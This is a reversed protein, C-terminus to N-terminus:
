HSVTSPLGQEVDKSNSKVKDSPAIDEPRKWDPRGWLHKLRMSMSGPRSVDRIIQGFERFTLTVPNYSTPKGVQSVVGFEPQETPDEAVYTGFLHDWIMLVGGMNRDIYRPNRAHHVRHNSPTNFLWEVVPSLHGIAQTHVWIQILLNVALVGMVWETPFGLLIAPLFFIYAGFFSYMVSQRFAVTYNFCESAHHVEHVAWLFRVRHATLHFLYFLFDVLLALGILNLTTMEITMLRFQYAWDFFPLVVAVVVFGEAVILYGGGMMISALSDKSEFKDTGRFYWWEMLAMLLVIPLGSIMLIQSMPLASITQLIIDITSTLPISELV